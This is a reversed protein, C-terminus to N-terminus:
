PEDRSLSRRMVLSATGSHLEIRRDELFGERAYLGVAASNTGGVVVRASRSGNAQSTAIFAQVLAAGIGTRRDTPDVAMALLETEPVADDPSSPRGDDRYGYRITEITRPLSRVLRVGSTCTVVAGDRWVFERYLRGVEESGAIFGMVGRGPESARDEKSRVLVFAHPSVLIRAYLRSLFRVGLSSLFGEEIAAAHLAAIAPVDSRNAVRVTDQGPSVGDRQMMAEEGSTGQSSWRM